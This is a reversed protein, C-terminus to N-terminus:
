HHYEHGHAINARIGASIDMLDDNTLPKPCFWAGAPLNDAVPAAFGSAIVITIKPWRLRIHQALSLGDITGQISIDLLVAGIQSHRELLGIAEAASCVELVDFGAGQFSECIHARILFEDEVVLLESRSLPMFLLEASAAISVSPGCDKERGPVACLQRM